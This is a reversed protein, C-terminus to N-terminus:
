WGLAHNAIGNASTIGLLTLADHRLLAYRRNHCLTDSCFLLLLLSKHLLLLLLLLVELLLIWHRHLFGIDHSVLGYPPIQVNPQCQVFIQRALVLLGFQRRQRHFPGHLDTDFGFVFLCKWLFLLKGTYGEEEEKLIMRTVDFGQLLVFLKHFINGVLAVNGVAFERVGDLDRSLLLIKRDHPVFTAIRQTRNRNSNLAADTGLASVHADGELDTGVGLIGVIEDMEGDDHANGVAYAPIGELAVGGASHPVFGLSDDQPADAFQAPALLKLQLTNQLHLLVEVQQQLTGLASPRVLVRHQHFLQFEWHQRSALTGTRLQTIHRQLNRVHRIHERRLHGLSHHPAKTNRMLFGISSMISSLIFQIM